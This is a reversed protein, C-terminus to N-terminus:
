FDWGQNADTAVFNKSYDRFSGGGTNGGKGGGFLMGLLSTGGTMPAALLPAISGLFDFFGAESADQQQQFQNQQQFMQLFPLMAQLNQYPLQTQARARGEELGGLAQVFPSAAQSGAGTIFGGPNAYGRSGAIAGATGQARGRETAMRSGLNGASINFLRNIMDMNPLQSKVDQYQLWPNAQANLKQMLDNRAPSWPMNNVFNQYDQSTNFTPM